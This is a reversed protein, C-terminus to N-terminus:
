VVGLHEYIRKYLKESQYDKVKERVKARMNEYEEKSNKRIEIARNMAEVLDQVNYEHYEYLIGEECDVHVIRNYTFTINAEHDAYELMPYSKVFIAPTGMFNAELVPLNFGEALSPSVYYDLSGLFALIEYHERSGFEATFFANQIGKIKPLINQKTIFLVVFDNRKQSLIRIAELLRDLGKRPRYDAICGFVVKDKFRNKIIQRYKPVIKIAKEYEVQLVGHPVVDIVRLNAHELCKKTYYSNAIFEVKDKMFYPILFPKILGETTTYYVVRGNLSNKALYYYYYYRMCFTPSAPMVIILADCLQSIRYYTPSGRNLIVVHGLKEGVYAIQRSVESLSVAHSTQILIKM